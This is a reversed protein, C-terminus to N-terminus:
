LGSSPPARRASRHAAPRLERARQVPGPREALHDARREPVQMGVLEAAVAEAGVSERRPPTVAGHPPEGPPGSRVGARLHASAADLRRRHRWGWPAHMPAARAPVAADVGASGPGPPGAAAAWTPRQHPADQ